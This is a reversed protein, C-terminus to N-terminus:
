CVDDTECLNFKCFVSGFANSIFPELLCLKVIPKHYEKVKDGVYVEVDASRVIEKKDPYVRSIRGMKWKNRPLNDELVLVLDGVAHNRETKRWKARSIMTPLYDKLWFSWIKNVVNQIKQYNDKHSKVEYVGPPIESNARLLLFHNPTLVEDRHDGSVYTLPRANLFGTVEAFLLRLESETLRMQAKGLAKHKQSIDLAKYFARKVSKVLSEHM